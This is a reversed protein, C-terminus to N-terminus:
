PCLPAPPSRAGCETACPNLLPNAGTGIVQRGVRTVASSTVPLNPATASWRTKTLSLQCWFFSYFLRTGKAPHLYNRATQVEM